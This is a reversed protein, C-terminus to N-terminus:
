LFKPGYTVIHGSIEMIFFREVYKSFLGTLWCFREMELEAWNPSPAPTAQVLDVGYTGFNQGPRRLTMDSLINRLLALNRRGSRADCSRVVM